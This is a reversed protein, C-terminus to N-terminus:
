SQHCAHACAWTTVTEKSASRKCSICAAHHISSQSQNHNSLSCSFSVAGHVALRTFMCWRYVVEDNDM